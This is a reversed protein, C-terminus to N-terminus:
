GYEDPVTPSSGAFGVDVDVEAGVAPGPSPSSVVAVVVSGHISASASPSSASDFGSNSFAVGVSALRKSSISTSRSLFSDRSSILVQCSDCFARM